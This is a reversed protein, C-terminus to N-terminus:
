RSVLPSLSALDFPKDIRRDRRYVAATALSISRYRPVM